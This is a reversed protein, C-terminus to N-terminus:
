VDDHWHNRVTCCDFRCGRIDLSLLHCSSGDDPRHFKLVLAELIRRAETGLLEAPAEAGSATVRRLYREIRQELEDRELARLSAFKVADDREATHVVALAALKDREITLGKNEFTLEKNATALHEIQHARLRALETADDRENALEDREAALQKFAHQSEQLQARLIEVEVRWKSGQDHNRLIGAVAEAIRWNGITNPHIGDSIWACNNRTCDFHNGFIKFINIPPALAYEFAVAAVAPPLFTNVLEKSIGDVNDIFVPPPMMLMITAQPQAQKISDLMIKYQNCFVDCGCNQLKTDNTGLMILVIDLEVDMMDAFQQTAAYPKDSNAQVCAAAAGFNFVFYRDGLLEQLHAPYAHYTQTSAQHTISDGLCGVLIFEDSQQPPTPADLQLLTPAVPVDM